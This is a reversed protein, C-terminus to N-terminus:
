KPMFYTLSVASRGPTEQVCAYLTISVAGLSGFELNAQSTECGVSKTINTVDPAMESAEPYKIASQRIEERVSAKLSSGFSELRWGASITGRFAVVKALFDASSYLLRNFVTRSLTTRSM